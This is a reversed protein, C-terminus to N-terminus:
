RVTFRVWFGPGVKASHKALIRHALFFREPKTHLDTHRLLGTRILARLRLASESYSVTTADMKALGVTAATFADEWEATSMQEIASASPGGSAARARPALPALTSLGGSAARLGRPALLPRAVAALRSLM